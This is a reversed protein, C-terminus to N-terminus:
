AFHESLAQTLPKLFFSDEPMLDVRVSRRRLADAVVPGVAAVVTREIGQQLQATLNAAAAVAWLRDVQSQSTFAIADVRGEHLSRILQLM